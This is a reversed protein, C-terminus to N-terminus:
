LALLTLTTTASYAGATQTHSSGNEARFEVTIATGSPHNGSSKTAILENTTTLANWCSNDTDSSGTNCASGNDQYEQAIDTGEPSFGFESVTSTITFSFDPDAGAPTYNAFSDSSSSLAPSSSAKIYLEYGAPSDTTVTVATSGTSTGATLGNLSPSLTVDAAATIALYVEQMQQYGAKIKYSASSSEGTAVEGFTSEQTYSTSTSLGGGLNISDSQIKYNSSSMVAASLSQLVAGGLVLIVLAIHCARKM